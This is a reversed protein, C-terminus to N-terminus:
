EFLSEFIETSSLTEHIPNKLILIRIMKIFIEIWFWKIWKENEVKFIWM